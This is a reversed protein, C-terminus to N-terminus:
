VFLIIRALICVRKAHKLTSFTSFHNFHIDFREKKLLMLSHFLFIFETEEIQETTDPKQVDFLRHPIVDCVAVVPVVAYM